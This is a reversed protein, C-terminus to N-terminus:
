AKSPRAGANQGRNRSRLQDRPHRRSGRKALDAEHCLEVSVTPDFCGCRTRMDRRQAGTKPRHKPPRRKSTGSARSGCLANSLLGEGSVWSSSCIVLLPTSAPQLWCRTGRQPSASPSAAIPRTLPRAPTCARCPPPRRRVHTASSGERCLPGRPTQWQNAHQPPHGPARVVLMKSEWLVFSCRANRCM